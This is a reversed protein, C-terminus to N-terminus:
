PIEIVHRTRRKSGHRWQWQHVLPSVEIHDIPLGERSCIKAALLGPAITGTFLGLMFSSLVGNVSDESRLPTRWRKYGVYRGSAYYNMRVTDFLSWSEGVPILGHPAGPVNFKLYPTGSYPPQTKQARSEFVNSLTGLHSTDHIKGQSTEGVPPNDLDYIFSHTWYYIHTSFPIAIRYEIDYQELHM